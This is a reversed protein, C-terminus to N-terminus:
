CTFRTPPHLLGVYYIVRIGAGRMFGRWGAQTWIQQILGPLTAKKTVEGDPTPITM